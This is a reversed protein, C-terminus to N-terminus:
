TTSSLLSTQCKTSTRSKIAFAKLHGGLRSTGKLKRKYIEHCVSKLHGGLKNKEKLNM